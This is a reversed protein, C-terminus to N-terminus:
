ACGARNCHAPKVQRYRVKNEPDVLYVFKREQDNGIARDSVLLAKYLTGLALRVRVFLGPVLLREKNALVARVRITGAEPDVRNDTADLIGRQPFGEENSLGIMVPLKGAEVKSERLSQRLRLYTREDMDFYVYMPDQGVLVALLTEDQKVLNGPDVHRLGIRGSIPATVKCFSLNLQCLQAGAESAKLRAAAENVAAQDQDLQQPTVGGQVAKALAQNRELTARALKLTAKNLDVQSLAQNFQAQYPRPDIEFLVDDKNVLDGEKFRTSNLYGAVRPRLDVRTSAETRGTFDEYDTVQRVVPRAVLVEPVKAANDQARAIESAPLLVFCLFWLHSSRANM